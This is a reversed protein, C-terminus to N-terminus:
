KVTRAAAEEADRTTHDSVNPYQGPRQVASHLRPPVCRLRGERLYTAVILMRIMLVPDISPRGTHSCYPALERHVWRLDLLGDIQARGVHRRSSFSRSVVTTVQIFAM